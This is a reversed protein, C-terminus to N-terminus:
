KIRPKMHRKNEQYMMNHWEAGTKSPTQNYKQQWIANKNQRFGQLANRKDEQGMLHINRAQQMKTMDAQSIEPKEEGNVLAEVSVMSDGLALYSNDVHCSYGELADVMAKIMRDDIETPLYSLTWGGERSNDVKFQTQPKETEEYDSDWTDEEENYGYEDENDGIFRGNLWLSIYTEANPGMFPWLRGFLYIHDNILSRSSLYQTIEYFDDENFAIGHDTVYEYEGSEEDEEIEYYGKELDEVDSPAIDFIDALVDYIMDRHTGDESGYHVFGDNMVVFPVGHDQYGLRVPSIKDDGDYEVSDPTSYEDITDEELPEEFSKDQLFNDFDDATAIYEDNIVGTESNKLDVMHTFDTMEMERYSSDILEALEQKGQKTNGLVESLVSNFDDVRLNCLNSFFFPLLKTDDIEYAVKNWLPVGLRLDWPEALLFDSNELIYKAKGNDTPLSHSAFLEFCGRVAEHLLYPMTLGQATIRTKEETTGLEVEVFGGQSPKKDNIKEKKEFLLFDNIAILREYLDPLEENLEVVEDYYYAVNKSFDYSAGQILADIVRRKEIMSNANAADELNEFEFDNSEPFIRFAKSPTLEDVISLDLIITDEPIGFLKNITNEVVKVLNPRIDKEIDIIAKTLESAESTIQQLDMPEEGLVEQLRDKVEIYRDKALKYDFPYSSTKPFVKSDGLSTNHEKVQKFLFRPLNNDSAGESLLKKLGQLKEENIKIIRKAM